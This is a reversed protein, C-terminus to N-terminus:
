EDKITINKLEFKTLTTIKKVGPMDKLKDTFKSFIKLNSHFNCEGLVTENADIITKKRYEDDEQECNNCNDDYWREEMWEVSIKKNLKNTVQIIVFEQNFFDAYECNVLKYEIKIKDNEFYVEFNKNETSSIAQLASLALIITLTLIKERM